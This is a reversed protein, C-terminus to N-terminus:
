SDFNYEFSPPLDAIPGDLLARDPDAASEAAANNNSGAPNAAAAGPNTAANKLSSMELFEAPEDPKRDRMVLIGGGAGTAISDAQSLIAHAVSTSSGTLGVKHHSKQTASSALLPRVPVYRSDNPFTIYPLQTATVRSLNSLKDISGEDKRRKSSKTEGNETKSVDMKTSDAGPGDDIKMADSAQHATPSEPAQTVEM